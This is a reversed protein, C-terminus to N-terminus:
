TADVPREVQREVQVRILEGSVGGELSVAATNQNVSGTTAIVVGRGVSDSKLRDGPTVTGGLELLADEGDGHVRLTEGTKAALNTAVSPIPAERTGDQAVGATRDNATAQIVAFDNTGDQKVFRSPIIDGKALYSPNAISM